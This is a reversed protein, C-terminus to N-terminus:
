SKTAQIQPEQHVSRLLDTFDGANEFTRDGAIM